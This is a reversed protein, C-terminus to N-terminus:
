NVIDLSFRLYRLSEERFELLKDVYDLDLVSFYKIDIDGIDNIDVLRELLGLRGLLSSFRSNGRKKNAVVLFPKKYILSFIMGHYSDTIVFKASRFGSLWDAVDPMVFDTMPARINANLGYKPQRSIIKLSTKKAIDRVFQMKMDDRDILYYYLYGEGEASKKGALLENYDSADLLLTPDAVWSVDLGLKESCLTVASRERVSIADFNRSLNSLKKTHRDSYEWTDVGFSAAYAVKKIKVGDLFDLFYNWINPSYVPRWVQDSGVIVAFFDEREFVRRLKASSDVEETLSMNDRMFVRPAALASKSKGEFGLPSKRRGFVLLGFRYFYRVLRVAASREDAVRNVTIPEVGCRFLVRQMAWAQMMGGYNHGLPQTLIAIRKKKM